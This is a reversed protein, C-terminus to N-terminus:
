GQALLDQMLEIEASQDEVMSQALATMQPDVDDVQDLYQSMAIADDHHPMTMQAFMVDIQNYSDGNGGSAM